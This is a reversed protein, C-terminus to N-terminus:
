SHSLVKELTALCRENEAATGVTIRLWEPLQYNNVPRTIVGLKQLECSIKQGDGVKVLIFNASSPVYELKLRKFAKEYLTLGAKNNGRTKELHAVDDLAALAGIQALMNTNFPQRVKEIAAVMEPSGMGFGLRLGALGYIKSFTRLLMLNPHRGSRVYPIFDLADDLYDIYAEDMVVLVHSPVEHILQLVEGRSAVTGTPNNPNAVFMIKTQPTVAKIMAPLDHGYDRAPVTILRAGFLQTVIPYVAFSYQSVVVDDGPSLVAHGVLELLENSGNGVTLQNSPVGMKKSLREKLYFANGDPYQHLSTLAEQMAKIALPSPGMSNENSALKIVNEPDLGLERAVETIPRGPLYVPLNKLVPNLAIALPM